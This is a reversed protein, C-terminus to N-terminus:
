WQGLQVFDKTFHIIIFCTWIQLLYIEESNLKVELFALKQALNTSKCRKTSNLNKRFHESSIDITLKDCNICTVMWQIKIYSLLIDTDFEYNGFTRHLIFCTLIRIFLVAVKSKVMKILQVDEKCNAVLKMIVYWM